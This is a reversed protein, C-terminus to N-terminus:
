ATKAGTQLGALASARRFRQGNEELRALETLEDGTLTPAPPMGPSVPAARNLPGFSRIKENLEVLSISAGVILGDVTIPFLYALDGERPAYMAVTGVMHWYSVWAAIGAIAGTAIIRSTRRWLRTSPIRSILEVMLLLAVPPWGAISQSILNPDAHLVNAAVSAAVGLLLMARVAWRLLNYERM